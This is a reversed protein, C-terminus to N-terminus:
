KVLVVVVVVALMGALPMSSVPLHVKALIAEVVRLTVPVNVFVESSRM